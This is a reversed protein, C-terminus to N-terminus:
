GFHGYISNGSLGATKGVVPKQQESNQDTVAMMIDKCRERYDRVMRREMDGTIGSLIQIATEMNSVMIFAHLYKDDTPVENGPWMVRVLGDVMNIKQDLKADNYSNISINALQRTNDRRMVETIGAGIIM